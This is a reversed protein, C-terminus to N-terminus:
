IIVDHNDVGRRTPFGIHMCMPVVMPKDACKGADMSSGWISHFSWVEKDRKWDRKQAQSVRGWTNQHVRM